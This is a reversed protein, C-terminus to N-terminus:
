GRCGPSSRRSAHVARVARREGHVPRGWEEDHYAPLGRTGAAWPAAPAPRGARRCRARGSVGPARRRARRRARAAMVACRGAFAVPRRRRGAPRVAPHAARLDARDGGVVDVRHEHGAAREVVEFWAERAGRPGAQRGPTAPDGATRRSRRGVVEMPDEFGLPGIGTRGVFRAGVGGRRRRSCPSGPSRCGAATPPGTPSARWTREVDGSEPRRRHLSGSAGGTSARGRPRARRAAPGALTSTPTGPLLRPGPAVDEHGADARTPGSGAAARDGRRTGCSTPSRDLM